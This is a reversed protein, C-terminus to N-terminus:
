KREDDLSYYYVCDDCLISDSNNQFFVALWFQRSNCDYPAYNNYYAGPKEETQRFKGYM